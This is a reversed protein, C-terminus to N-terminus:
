SFIETCIAGGGMELKKEEMHARVTVQKDEHIEVNEQAKEVTKGVLVLKKHKRNNLDSIRNYKRQYFRKKETFFSVEPLPRKQTRISMTICQLSLFSIETLKLFNILWDKGFEHLQFAQFAEIKTSSFDCKNENKELHNWQLM